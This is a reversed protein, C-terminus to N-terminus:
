IDGRGIVNLTFNLNKIKNIQESSLINNSDILLGQYNGLWIDYQIKKYESHPVALIILNFEEPNPLTQCFEVKPFNFNSLMPDHCSIKKFKSKFYDLLKLSPSYRTDEVNEKYTLGLILVSKYKTNQLKKEVLDLTNKPMCNNIEVSKKSIEFNLPRIKFIQNCSVLGMLPDKTLCYGGVGLGPRRINSHTPRLKIAEIVEFLDIGVSEAFLGWENIFAINAARYSNEIIKATESATTSKLEKMPFKITNIITKYFDRCKKASESNIGAYVRWFETISKFYNEGPMVREYSHALNLNSFKPFRKKLIDKLHPYIIESTTGPPVTTEIIVLADPKMKLGISKIANKFPQFNVKPDIDISSVDLNIDVMIVDAKSFLNTSYSAVLNGEEHASKFAKLLNKDTTKFPMIGSNIKKIRSKGENNPLDIGIVDYLTNKGKKASAIAVCMAFGVFGLGQVCVTQRKKIMESSSEKGLSSM